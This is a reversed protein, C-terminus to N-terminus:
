ELIEWYKISGSTKKVTNAYTKWWISDQALIIWGIGGWSIERVDM